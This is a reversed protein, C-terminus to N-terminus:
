HWTNWRKRCVSITISDSLRVCSIVETFNWCRCYVLCMEPGDAMLKSASMATGSEVAMLSLDNGLALAHASSAGKGEHLSRLGLQDPGQHHLAFNLGAGIRSASFSIM